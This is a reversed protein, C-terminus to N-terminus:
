VVLWNLVYKEDMKRIYFNKLSQTCSVIFEIFHEVIEFHLKFLNKIDKKLNIDFLSKKSILNKPVVKKAYKIM